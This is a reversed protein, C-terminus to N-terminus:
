RKALAVRFNVDLRFVALGKGIDGALVLGLLGELLDDIEQMVRFFVRIDACRQGLAGQEDARGAGAFRKQCLGDGALRM